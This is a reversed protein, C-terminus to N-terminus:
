SFKVLEMLSLSIEGIMIIFFGFSFFQPYKILKFHKEHVESGTGFEKCEFCSFIKSNKKLNKKKLVIVAQM